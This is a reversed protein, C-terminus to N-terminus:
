DRDRGDLLHTVLWSNNGNPQNTIFIPSNDDKILDNIVLSSSIM